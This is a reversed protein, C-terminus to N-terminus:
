AGGSSPLKARDSLEIVSQTVAGAVAPQSLGIQSKPIEPNSPCSDNLRQVEEVLNQARERVREDDTVTLKSLSHPFSFRLAPDFNNWIGRSVVFRWNARM